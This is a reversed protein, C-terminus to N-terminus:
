LAGMVICENIAREITRRSQTILNSHTGHNNGSMINIELRGGDFTYVAIHEFILEHEKVYLCQIFIYKCCEPDDSVSEEPEVGDCLSIGYSDFISQYTM